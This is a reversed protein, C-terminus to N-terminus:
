RNTSIATSTSGVINNNMDRFEIFIRNAAADFNICGNFTVFIAVTRNAGSEVSQLINDGIVKGTGPDTEEISISVPLSASGTNAVATIDGTTAAGVNSFAVAFANAGSCTTQHFDATTTLAIIDPEAVATSRLLWTNIGTLLSTSSANDAQAQIHVITATFTENPTFSLVYCLIGGPALDLSPNTSGIIANTACDTQQYSFIGALAPNVSLTLDTAVSAGANIVTNFITVTNGLSVTRSTPLISNVLTTPNPLASQRSLIVPVDMLDNNEVLKTIDADFISVYKASALYGNKYVKVLRLFDYCNHPMSSGGWAFTIQGNTDTFGDMILQSQYSNDGAVSWIKVNAGVLLDGYVTTVSVTINQLDITSFGNRYDGSMIAATLSSYKVFTLLAERTSLWELGETRVPNRLLPDAMFDRKNVWFSDNSDLVNIDLFPSIGTTDKINSLKYYEGIGAGFVHALEHLMNNIQTWYDILQSSTLQEPDYIEKWKLGALVGAGSDDIGAYGGYSILYSSPIAYAWVQFNEVPFPAHAQNSHPQSIAIIIDTEPNFVLRRNTNKILVINMDEIYKPLVAKAFDMDPVLAPDLYFKFTMEKISTETLLNANILNSGLPLFSQTSNFPALDSETSSAALVPSPAGSFCLALAVALIIINTFIKSAM